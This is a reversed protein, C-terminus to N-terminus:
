RGMCGGLLLSRNCLWVFSNCGIIKAIEFKTIKCWVALDGFKIGWWYKQGYPIHITHIYTSVYM